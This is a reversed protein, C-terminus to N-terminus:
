KQNWQLSPIALRRCQVCQTMVIGNQKPDNPSFNRNQFCRMHDLRQKGLRGRQRAIRGEEHVKREMEKTTLEVLEFFRRLGKASDKLSTPTVRVIVSDIDIEVEDLHQAADHFLSASLLCTNTEANQVLQEPSNPYNSPSLQPGAISSAGSVSKYKDAIQLSSELIPSFLAEGGDPVVHKRGEARVLILYQSEQPVFSQFPSANEKVRAISADMVKLVTRAKSANKTHDVVIDFVEVIYTRKRPTPDLFTDLSAYSAISQDDSTQVSSKSHGEIAMEVREVKVLLSHSSSVNLEAKVSATDSTKAM